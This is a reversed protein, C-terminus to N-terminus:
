EAAQTHTHTQRERRGRLQEVLHMHDTKENERDESEHVVLPKHVPHERPEKQVTHIASETVPLQGGVPCADGEM